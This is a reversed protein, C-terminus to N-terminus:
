DERLLLKRFMLKSINTEQPIQVRKAIPSSIVHRKDYGSLPLAKCFYLLSNLLLESSLVTM